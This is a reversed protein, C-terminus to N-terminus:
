LIHRWIKGRKIDSITSPDVGFQTAIIKNSYNQSIMNKIEIVQSETLKANHHKSGKSHSNSMKEKTEDTHKKGINIDRLKQKQEESIHEGKKLSQLGKHAKSLNNRAEDSRIKGTNSISIQKKVADSRIKGMNARSIKNKHECSLHKGYNWNFIGSIYNGGPTSNLGNFYTKEQNMTLEFELIKACIECKTNCLEEIQIKLRGESVSSVYSRIKRFLKPCANKNNNSFCKFLHEDLRKQISRSTIGIYNKDDVTIKYLKYITNGYNCSSSLKHKEILEEISATIVNRLVM